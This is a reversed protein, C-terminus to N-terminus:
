NGTNHLNGLYCHFSDLIDAQVMAAKTQLAVNQLALTRRNVKQHQVLHPIYFSCVSFIFASSLYLTEPLMVLSSVTCVNM